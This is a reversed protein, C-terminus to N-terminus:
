VIPVPPRSGPDRDGLNWHLESARHLWRRCTFNGRLWRKFTIPRAGIDLPNPEWPGLRVKVSSWTRVGPRDAM